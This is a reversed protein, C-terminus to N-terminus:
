HPCPEDRLQVILNRWRQYLHRIRIVARAGLDSSQVVAALARQTPGIRRAPAISKGNRVIFDVKGLLEKALVPLDAEPMSDGRTVVFPDRGRCVVVRHILLRGERKYLAIHGPQVDHHNLRSLILSDGPWISPIMSWGHAELRLSGSRLLSECALECKISHTVDMFTAANV